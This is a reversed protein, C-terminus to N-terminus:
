ELGSSAWCGLGCFKATRHLVYLFLAPMKENVVDVCIERRNLMMAHSPWMFEHTFSRSSSTTNHAARAKASLVLVSSKSTLGPPTTCVKEALSTLLAGQYKVLSIHYFTKIFNRIIVHENWQIIRMSEIEHKCLRKKTEKENRTM